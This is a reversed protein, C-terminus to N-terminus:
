PMRPDPLPGTHTVTSEAAHDYGEPATIEVPGGGPTWERSEGARLLCASVSDAVVLARSTSNTLPLTGTPLLSVVRVRSECGALALIAAGVLLILALKPPIDCERWYRRSLM